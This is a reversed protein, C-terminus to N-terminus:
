VSESILHINMFYNAKPGLASKRLTNECTGSFRVQHNIGSLLHTIVGSIVPILLTFGSGVPTIVWKTLPIFWWTGTFIHSGQVSEM